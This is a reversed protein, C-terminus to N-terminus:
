TSKREKLNNYDKIEKENAPRCYDADFYANVCFMNGNLYDSTSYGVANIFNGPLMRDYIFTVKIEDCEYVLIDGYNM